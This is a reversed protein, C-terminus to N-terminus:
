MQLFYTCLLHLINDRASKWRQRLNNRLKKLDMGVQFFIKCHSEKHEPRKPPDYVLCWNSFHLVNTTSSIFVKTAPSSCKVMVNQFLAQKMRSIFANFVRLRLEAVCVYLKKGAIELCVKYTSIITVWLYMYMYVWRWFLATYRYM